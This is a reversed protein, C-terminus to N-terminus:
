TESMYRHKLKRNHHDAGKCEHKETKRKEERQTEKKKIGWERNRYRKERDANGQRETQRETGRYEAERLRDTEYPM